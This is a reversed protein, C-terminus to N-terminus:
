MFPARSDYESSLRVNYKNALEVNGHDAQAKEGGGGKRIGEKVTLAEGLEGIEKVLHIYQVYTSWNFKFRKVIEAVELQYQELTRTDM